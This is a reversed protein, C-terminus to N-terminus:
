IIFKNYTENTEINKWLFEGNYLTMFSHPSNEKPISVSGCNMYIFSGNDECKPVHTHGHLLIDGKQMEQSLVNASVMHQENENLREWFPFIMKYDM